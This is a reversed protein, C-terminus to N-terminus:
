GEPSEAKQLRSELEAVYAESKELSTSVAELAKRFDPFNPFLKSFAMFAIEFNAPKLERRSEEQIIVWLARKRELDRLEFEKQGEKTGRPVFDFNLRLYEQRTDSDLTLWNRVTGEVRSARQFERIPDEFAAAEKAKEERKAVADFQEKLTEHQATHIQPM